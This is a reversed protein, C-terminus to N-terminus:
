DKTTCLVADSVDIPQSTDTAILEMSNSWLILLRSKSGMKARGNAFKLRM